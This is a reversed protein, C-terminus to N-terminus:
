VLSNTPEPKHKPQEQDRIILSCAANEVKEVSQVMTEMKKGIEGGLSTGHCSTTDLAEFSSRLHRLDTLISRSISSHSSKLHPLSGTTAIATVAFRMIEGSLDFLGLAYDDATLPINWIMGEMAVERTVLKGTRLYHEFSLAEIFEQIGPSAQRQYRWSNIGQLDKSMTKFLESIADFRGQVETSIAPPIGSSITRVRQLSFIAKKSLATVDRSAKIIRERALHNEDIEIRFGDFIPLFPNSNAAMEEYSRKEAPM